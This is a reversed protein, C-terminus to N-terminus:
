FPGFFDRFFSLVFFFFILAVLPWYLCFCLRFSFLWALILVVLTSRLPGFFASPTHTSMSNDGARPTWTGGSLCGSQHRQTRWLCCSGGLLHTTELFWEFCSPFSSGPRACSIWKRHLPRTSRCADVSLPRVPPALSASTFIADLQAIDM